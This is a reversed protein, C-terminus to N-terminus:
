SKKDEMEVDGGDGALSGFEKKDTLADGNLSEIDERDTEVEEGNVVPEPEPAVFKNGGGQAVEEVRIKGLRSPARQGGSSSGPGEKEHKGEVEKEEMGAVREMEAKDIVNQKAVDEHIELGKGGPALAGYSEPAAKVIEDEPTTKPTEVGPLGVATLLTNIPTPIHGTPARSLPSTQQSDLITPPQSATIPQESALFPPESVPLQLFTLQFNLRPLIYM